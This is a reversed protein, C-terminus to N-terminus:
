LITPKTARWTQWLVLALFLLAFLNLSDVTVEMFIVPHPWLTLAEAFEPYTKILFTRAVLYNAGFYSLGSIGVGMIQLWRSRRGGTATLLGKAVAFGIVMAVLGFQIKTLEAFGWWAVVGVAAGALGGLLAIPYNIQRPLRMLEQLQAALRSFCARCFMGKHTVECDDASSVTCDCELCRTATIVDPSTPQDMSRNEKVFQRV